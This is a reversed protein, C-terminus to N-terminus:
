DAYQSWPSKKNQKPKEALSILRVGIGVTSLVKISTQELEDTEPNVYEAYLYASAPFLNTAPVIEYGTVKGYAPAYYAGFIFELESGVPFDTVNEPTIHTHTM